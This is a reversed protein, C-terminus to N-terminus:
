HTQNFLIVENLKEQDKLDEEQAKLRVDSLHKTKEMAIAGLINKYFKEMAHAITMLSKQKKDEAPDCEMAEDRAKIIEYRMLKKVAKAYPGDDHVMLDMKESDTLEKPQDDWSTANPNTQAQKTEWESGNV